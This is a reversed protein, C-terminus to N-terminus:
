QSTLNLFKRVYMCVYMCVYTAQYQRHQYQLVSRTFNSIATVHILNCNSRVQFSNGVCQELVPSDDLMRPVYTCM